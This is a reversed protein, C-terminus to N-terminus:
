LGILLLAICLAPLLALLVSWAAASRRRARLAHAAYLAAYLAAAAFVLCFAIM